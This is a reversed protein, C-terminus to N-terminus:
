LSIGWKIQIKWINLWKHAESLQVNPCTFCGKHNMQHTFLKGSVWPDSSNARKFGM